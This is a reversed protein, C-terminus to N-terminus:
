RSASTACSDVHNRRRCRKTSCTPAAVADEAAGLVGWWGVGGEPVTGVVGWHTLTWAPTRTAWGRATRPRGGGGRQHVADQHLVFLYPPSIISYQDTPNFLWFEEFSFISETFRSVWLRLCPSPFISSSHIQDILFSHKHRTKNERLCSM